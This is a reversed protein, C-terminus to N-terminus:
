TIKRIFASKLIRIRLTYNSFFSKIKLLSYYFNKPLMSDYHLEFDDRNEYLKEFLNHYTNSMKRATKDYSNIKKAWFDYNDYMKNLKEKFNSRSFEIGYGNCYEPLAGSKIYLIPLGCMAGEIHHMGAPENLSATLYVHHKKLENALAIGSLPSKIHTNKYELGPPCNGIFTFEFKSDYNPNDLLKNLYQYIAHGKLYGGGWHHTVIKLKEKKNWIKKEKANFISEDAGNLIIESPKNEPLGNKKLLPELWSAIFVLFDSEKAVKVLLKNMYNTGKREDCENIRHIIITESNKVKYAKADLYSYSATSWTSYAVIIIIDIDNDNLHNVVKHGNKLLHGELSRFFAIVGGYPGEIKKCNISIKM